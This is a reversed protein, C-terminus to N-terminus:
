WSALPLVSIDLNRRKKIDIRTQIITMMSMLCDLYGLIIVNILFYYFAIYKTKTQCHVLFCELLICVTQKIVTEYKYHVIRFPTDPIPTNTSHPALQVLRFMVQSRQGSPLWPHPRPGNSPPPGQINFDIDPTGICHPGMDLPLPTRTHHPGICWLYGHMHVSPCVRSFVNIELLKTPMRYFLSNYFTSLRLPCSM